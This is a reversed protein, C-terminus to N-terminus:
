SQDAIELTLVSIFERKASYNAFSQFDLASVFLLLKFLLRENKPLSDM